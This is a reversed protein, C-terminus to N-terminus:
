SIFAAVALGRRLLSDELVYATFVLGNLDAAGERVKAVVTHDVRDAVDGVLVTELGLASM